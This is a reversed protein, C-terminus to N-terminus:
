AIIPYILLVQSSSPCPFLPLSPRLFLVSVLPLVNQSSPGLLLPGTDKGLLSGCHGSLHNSHPGALDYLSVDIEALIAQIQIEAWHSARPPNQKTKNALLGKRESSNKICLLTALIVSDGYVVCGTDGNTVDLTLITCQDRSLFWCLCM